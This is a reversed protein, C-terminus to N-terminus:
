KVQKVVCPGEGRYNSSYGLPKASMSLVNRPRLYSARFEFKPLYQGHSNTFDEIVWIFTIRKGNNVSVRAPLPKGNNFSYIISDHVEVAGTNEDHVIDVATPIWHSNGNEEVKCSYHTAASALSPSLCLMAFAALKLKKQLTM